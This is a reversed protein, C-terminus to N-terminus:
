WAKPTSYQRFINSTLPSGQRLEQYAMRSSSSDFKPTRNNWNNRPERGTDIMFPWLGTSEHPLYAQAIDVFPLLESWDNQAYNVM